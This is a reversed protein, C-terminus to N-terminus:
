QCTATHGFTNAPMAPNRDGGQVKNLCDALKGAGASGAAAGCANCKAILAEKSTTKFSGSSTCLSGNLTGPCQPLNNLNEGSNNQQNNSQNQNSAPQNTQQSSQQNCDVFEWKVNINGDAGASGNHIQEVGKKGLEITGPICRAGCRSQVKAIVSGKDGTVKICRGCQPTKFDGGFDAVGLAAVINNSFDVPIGCSGESLKEDATILKQQAPQQVLFGGFDPAPASAVLAILYATFPNM